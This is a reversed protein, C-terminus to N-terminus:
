ACSCRCPWCTPPTACWIDNGGCTPRATAAPTSTINAFFPACAAGRASIPWPRRLPFPATTDRLNLDFILDECYDLWEPYGGGSEWAEKLFAVSRSSPLFTEPNSRALSPLVTSGMVVEFDTYPDPEFWGAVVRTKGGQLPATLAELWVPGLVVGADTAAIIPGAAAAIALNRGASINAGPAVIIRLPLWQRYEALVDLTNDTSGGDCILVEDPPRTQYLLSELLPRLADGENKVTAIVSVKM